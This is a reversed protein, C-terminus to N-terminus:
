QGLKGLSAAALAGFAIFVALGVAYLGLVVVSAIGSFKWFSKQQGLADELDASSRTTMLRAIASGYGWLKIGPYIYFLAIPVYVLGVAAQSAKGGPALMGYAALAVGVLAMLASGVFALISLLLVWPRTQRLLEVTTDSVAVSGTAGYNVGAAPYAPSPVGPPSYPNM